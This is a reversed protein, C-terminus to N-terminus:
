RYYYYYYYYNHYYYCFEGYGNQSLGTVSARTGGAPDTAACKWRRRSPGSPTIHGARRRDSITAAEAGGELASQEAAGRPRTAPRTAAM